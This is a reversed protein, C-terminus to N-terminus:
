QKKILLSTNATVTAGPTITISRCSAPANIVCNFRTGGNIIVDTCENPVLGGSWNSGKHWSSDTEGVWLATPDKRIAIFYDSRDKTFVRSVRSCDPYTFEIRFRGAVNKLSPLQFAGNVLLATKKGLLSDLPTVSVLGTNVGEVIGFIGNAEPFHSRFVTDTILGDPSQVSGVVKVRGSYGSFQPYFSAWGYVPASISSGSYVLSDNHNFIRMSLPVGSQPLEDGVANRYFYDLTYGNIRQYLKYGPSPNTNLTFQREYWLSIPLGELVPKIAIVISKLVSESLRANLNVSTKEYLSDNFRKLFSHDELYAKGWIYGCMAYKLVVLTNNGGVYGYATGLAPRNLADYFMDYDHGHFEGFSHTYAALQNFVEIEAARTMGEEYTSLGMLWYGRFAHISEHCFVDASANRLVIENSGSYYYGSAQISPDKAVNVTINFFPSGIVNKIAPYIDAIYNNLLSLEAATWPHSYPNFTYTLEHTTVRATHNPTVPNGMDPFIPNGQEDTFVIILDIDMTGPGAPRRAAVISKTYNHLNTKITRDNSFVDSRPTGKPLPIYLISEDTNDPQATQAHCNNIWCWSTFFLLLPGRQLFNFM